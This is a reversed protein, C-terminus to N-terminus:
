DKLSTASRVQYLTPTWLVPEARQPTARASAAWLFCFSASDLAPRPAPRTATLGTPGSPGATQLLCLPVCMCVSHNLLELASLSLSIAQTGSDPCFPSGLWWWRASPM